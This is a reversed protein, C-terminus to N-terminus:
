SSYDVEVKLDGNSLVENLKVKSPVYDRDINKFYM